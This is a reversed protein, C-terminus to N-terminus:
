DVMNEEAYLRDLEPCGEGVQWAKPFSRCQLPRAQYVTCQNEQLFICSGDAQDRLALQSRNPSLRTYQEIFVEEQLNLEAAMLRIDEYTLHVYGPWRCCDGCQTCVFKAFNFPKKM